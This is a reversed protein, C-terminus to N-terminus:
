TSSDHSCTYTVTDTGTTFSPINCYTWTTLSSSWEKSCKECYVVDCKACYKLNHECHCHNHKSM